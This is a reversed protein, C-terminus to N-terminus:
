LSQGVALGSLLMALLWWFNLRQMPQRRYVALWTPLWLISILALWLPARAIVLLVGIGIDAVGLLGIGVLDGTHRMNRGEGWNHVFWLTVLAAYIPWADRENTIGLQNLTLVWPLAVTVASHLVAPPNQYTHRGIWGLVSVAIVLMTMWVATAGLVLAIALALLATPMAVRFLLHLVGRDDWGLLLAAPSGPQLYPLWVPRRVDREHLPLLETRGAALRWISGWLPDALLLLLAIERWDLDLPHSLFGLSLIATIVAWGATPRWPFQNLWIQANITASSGLNIDVVTAPALM